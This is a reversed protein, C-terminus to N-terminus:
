TVSMRCNSVPVIFNLFEGLNGSTIPFLLPQFGLPRVELGSCWGMVEM